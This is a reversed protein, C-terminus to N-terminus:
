QNTTQILLTISKIGIMPNGLIHGHLLLIVNVLTHPYQYPSHFGRACGCCSACYVPSDRDAALQLQEGASAAALASLLLRVGGGREAFTLQDSTYKRPRM